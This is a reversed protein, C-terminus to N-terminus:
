DPETPSVRAMVYAQQLALAVVFAAVSLALWRYANGLADYRMRLNKALSVAQAALEALYQAEDIKSLAAVAGQADLRAFIGFYLLHTRSRNRSSRKSLKKTINLGELLSLMSFLVTVSAIIRVALRTSDPQLMTQLVLVILGSAATASITAKAILQNRRQEFTQLMFEAARVAAQPPPSVSPAPPRSSRRSLSAEMGLWAPTGRCREQREFTPM